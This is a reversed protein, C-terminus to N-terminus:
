NKDEKKILEAFEKIANEAYQSIRYDEDTKFLSIYIQLFQNIKTSDDKLMLTLSELAAMRVEYDLDKCQNSLFVLIQDNDKVKLGIKGLTKLADVRVSWHKDKTAKQKIQSISDKKLVKEIFLEAIDGILKVINRRVIWNESNLYQILIEFLDDPFPLNKEKIKNFIPTLSSIAESREEDDKDQIIQIVYDTIKQIKEQKVMKLIKKEIKRM